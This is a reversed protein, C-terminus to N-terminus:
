KKRLTKKINKEKTMVKVDAADLVSSTPNTQAHAVKPITSWMM